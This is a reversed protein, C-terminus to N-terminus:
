SKPKATKKKRVLAWRKRQAAAMRQRAAQSVPRRASSARVPRGRKGRNRALRDFIAIAQDLQAQYARLDGLVKLVDM